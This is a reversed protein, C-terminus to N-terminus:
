NNNNLNENNNNLNENNDNLNEGCIDSERKTILNYGLERIANDRLITKEYLYGYSKKVTPNEENKDFMLPNGHWYNGHFEYVTNTEKCYGDVKGIGLIKFEGDLKCAHQIIISEKEEIETLWKIQSKSYGNSACRSCPIHDHVSNPRLYCKHKNSCFCEVITSSNIYEGVIEGGFKQMKDIFKKKSEEPCLGLCKICINQSKSQQIHTPIPFCIHGNKCLCKVGIKSNVYDGIIIGECEEINEIFKKMAEMPCLGVCKKCIGRGQQIRAPMPSCEHGNKCLCKVKTMSNVYEGVITGELKAINKIFNKKIEEPCCKSCMGNKNQISHPTPSCKHGNACLCEIPSISNVYKGIVIGGLKEINKIFKNECEEPCLGACKLCMGQGRRISDPRPSCKHGSACLCEVPSNTNVYKGVITGGLKEINKIFKNEAEIPCNGACKKCMGQGKLVGSPVPLCKHGNKCLCEVKINTNIYEGVIKGGLIEIKKTFENKIEISRKNPCFKCGSIRKFNKPPINLQHGNLCTFAMEVKDNEYNDTLVVWGRETAISIISDFCRQQRKNM